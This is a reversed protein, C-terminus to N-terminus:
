RYNVTRYNNGFCIFSQWVSVIFLHGCAENRGSSCFIILGTIQFMEMPSIDQFRLLLLVAYNNVKHTAIFTHIAYNSKQLCIIRFLVVEFIVELIASFVSGNVSIDTAYIIRPFM